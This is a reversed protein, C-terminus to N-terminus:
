QLDREKQTDKNFKKIAKETEPGFYGDAGFKPLSYGLFILAAQINEIMKSYKMQGYKQVPVSKEAEIFDRLTKYFDDIDSDEVSDSKGKKKIKGSERKGTLWDFYGETIKKTQNM